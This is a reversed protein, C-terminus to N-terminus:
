SRAGAGGDMCADFGTADFGTPDFGLAMRARQRYHTRVAEPLRQWDAESAAPHAYVSWLALAADEQRADRLAQETPPVAM